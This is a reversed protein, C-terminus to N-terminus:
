EKRLIQTMEAKLDYFVQDLKNQLIEFSEDNQQDENLKDYEANIDKINQLYKEFIAESLNRAVTEKPIEVYLFQFNNLFEDLFEDVFAKKNKM